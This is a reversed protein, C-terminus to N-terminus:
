EVLESEVEGLLRILNRPCKLDVYEQAIQFPDITANGLSNRSFRGVVYKGFFRSNEIDNVFWCGKFKQSFYEGIFYGMRGILWVRGDSSEVNMNDVAIGINEAYIEAHNLVEHSPEIGLFDVFEVLLEIVDKYFNEMRSKRYEITNNNKM